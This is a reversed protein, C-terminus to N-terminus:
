TSEYGENVVKEQYARYKDDNYVLRFQEVLYNMKKNKSLNKNGIAYFVASYFVCKKERTDALSNIIDVVQKSKALLDKKNLIPKKRKDNQTAAYSAATIKNLHNKYIGVSTASLDAKAPNIEFQFLPVNPDKAVRPM